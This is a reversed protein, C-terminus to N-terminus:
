VIFRIARFLSRDYLKIMSRGVPKIWQIGSVTDKMGKCVSTSSIKEIFIDRIEKETQMGVVIVDPAITINDPNCGNVNWGFLKSIGVKFWKLM